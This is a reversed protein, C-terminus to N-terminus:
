SKPVRVTHAFSAAYNDQGWQKVFKLNQDFEYLQSATAGRAPGANGSRTFVYLHGKSDKAVGTAEGITHGPVSLNLVEETIQLQPTAKELADQKAMAAQLEPSPGRGGQAQPTQQVFFGAGMLLLLVIFHRKM